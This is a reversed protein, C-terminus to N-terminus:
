AQLPVEPLRIVFRAGQYPGPSFAQISGGMAKIVRQVTYLGYGQNLADRDTKTTFLPSFLLNGVDQNFGIGNDEVAIEVSGNDRVASIGVRYDIQVSSTKDVPRREAIAEIANKILCDLAHGLEEPDAFATLETSGADIYVDASKSAWAKSASDIIPWLDTPKPNVPRDRAVDKLELLVQHIRSSHNVIFGARESLLPETLSNKLERASQQIVQLSTGIRHALERHASAISEATEARVTERERARMEETTAILESFYSLVDRWRPDFAGERLSEMELVGIISQDFAVPVAMLAAADPLVPELVRTAAATHAAIFPAGAQIDRVFKREPNPHATDSFLDISLSKSLFFVHFGDPQLTQRVVERIKDLVTKLNDARHLDRRIRRVSKLAIGPAIFCQLQSPTMDKVLYQWVGMRLDDIASSMEPYGTLLVVCIYDLLDKEYLWRVVQDGTKRPMNKDLVIADFYKGKKALIDIAQQGDSATEVQWGISRFHFGFADLIYEENDVLLINAM